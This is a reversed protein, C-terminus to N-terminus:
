PPLADAQNSRLYSMNPLGPLMLLGPWIFAMAIARFIRSGHAAKAADRHQRAEAQCCVAAGSTAREVEALTDVVRLVFCSSAAAM